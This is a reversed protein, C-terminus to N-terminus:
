GNELSLFKEDIKIWKFDIFGRLHAEAPLLVEKRKLYQHVEYSIPVVPVENILLKEAHLLYNQRKARNEERDAADLIEKYTQNEWKAFNIREGGDKFINLIYLPDDVLASWGMAGLQYDGKTMKDFLVDWNYSEIKCPIQLAKEIQQQIIEAIRDRIEGQTHILTIPSFDERRIGLEKLALKFFKKALKINKSGKKSMKCQTYPFPLPTFAPTGAGYGLRSLENQDISHMIAKRM